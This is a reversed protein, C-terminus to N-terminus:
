RRAFRFAEVGLPEDTLQQAEGGSAPLVWVQMRKDADEDPKIENPPRNSLFGLAGDRRFGPATDTTDGRTLQTPPAGDTPVRWLDSVYQTGDRDLRQVAVALWSGDPSAAIASVRKLTIHEHVAYTMRPM